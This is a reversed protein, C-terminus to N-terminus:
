IGPRVGEPDKICAGDDWEQPPVGMQALWEPWSGYGEPPAADVYGLAVRWFAALAAPNACDFTVTWKTIM